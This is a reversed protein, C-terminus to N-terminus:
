PQKFQKCANYFDEQSVQSIAWNEKGTDQQQDIKAAGIIGGALVALGQEVNAKGSVLFFRAQNSSATDRFPTQESIRMFPASPTLSFRYAQIIGIPVTGYSNNRIVATAADEVYLIPAEAIRMVSLPRCYSITGGTGSKVIPAPTRPTESMFGATLICSMILVLYKHL